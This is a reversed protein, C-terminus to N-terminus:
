ALIEGVRAVDRTDGAGDKESLAAFSRANEMTLAQLRPEMNRYLAVLEREDPSLDLGLSKKPKGIIEVKDVSFVAAINEIVGMRPIIKGSEYQSIASRTKGIRAGLESQSMGAGTRLRKIHKGIDSM